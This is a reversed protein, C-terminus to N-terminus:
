FHIDILNGGVHLVIHIHIFGHFDMVHFAVALTIIAIIIIGNFYDHLYIRYLFHAYHLVM